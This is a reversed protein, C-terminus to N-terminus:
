AINHKLVALYKFGGFLRASWYLPYRYYMKVGELKLARLFANDAIHRDYGEKYLVHHFIAAACTQRNLLRGLVPFYYTVADIDVAFGKPIEVIVWQSKLEICYRVKEIVTWKNDKQFLAKPPIIESLEIKKMSVQSESIM